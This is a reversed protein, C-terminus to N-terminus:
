RYVDMAAELGATTSAGRVSALCLHLVSVVFLEAPLLQQIIHEGVLWSVYARCNSQLKADYHHPHIFLDLHDTQYCYNHRNKPMNHFITAPHRLILNMKLYRFHFKSLYKKSSLFLLEDSPM